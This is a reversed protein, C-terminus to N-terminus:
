VAAAPAVAHKKEWLAREELISLKVGNGKPLSIWSETGKGLVFVNDFRTAFKHGAADQLHVITFSGPHTEIRQIVGVRGMNNGSTIIAVNGQQFKAYDLVKGTELDVKITDGVEILPDPYRITRADTTIIVPVANSGFDTRRVRCLKFKAEEAKTRHIVFRGKVDYLIRFHENTKEISVSDGFGLPYKVDTRVKGDIKVLRQKLITTVEKKTLAYRLRERLLMVIPMSERM